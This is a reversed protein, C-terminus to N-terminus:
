RHFMLGVCPVSASTVPAGRTAWVADDLPAPRSFPIHAYFAYFRCSDTTSDATWKTTASPPSAACRGHSCYHSSFASSSSRRSWCTAEKRRLGVRAAAHIRGAKSTDSSLRNRSDSGCTVAHMDTALGTPKLRRHRGKGCTPASTTEGARCAPETTVPFCFFGDHRFRRAGYTDMSALSFRTNRIATVGFRSSPNPTGSHSPRPEGGLIRVEDFPELSRHAATVGAPFILTSVTTLSSLISSREDRGDDNGCMIAREHGHAPPTSVGQAGRRPNSGRHRSGSDRISGTADSPFLRRAPPIMSPALSFSGTEGAM